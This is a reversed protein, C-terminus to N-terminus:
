VVYEAEAQPVNFQEQGLTANDNGVLRHSAPALFEGCTKGVAQTAPGPRPVLPVHVIDEDADLAHLVIEPTGDSLIADHEVDENLGPAIGVGRLAEELPKQLAQVIYRPHDHGVLQPAITDSLTLQKGADLMSLASIQVIPGLVRMSRRSSSLSLHLPEFRGLLGLVEEGSVGEDVTVEVWTSVLEGGMGITHDPRVSEFEPM